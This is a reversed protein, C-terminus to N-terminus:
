QDGLLKTLALEVAGAGFAADAVVEGGLSVYIQGGLHLGSEVGRALEEGTRPVSALSGDVEIVTM